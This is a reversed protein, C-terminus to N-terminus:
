IFSTENNIEKLRPLDHKLILYMLDIEDKPINNPVGDIYFYHEICKNNLMNYTKFEGHPQGHRFYGRQILCTPYNRFCCYGHLNGHEDVSLKSHIFVKDVGTITFTDGPNM